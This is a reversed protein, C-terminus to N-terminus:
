FRTSVTLDFRQRRDHAEMRLPHAVNFRLPGIPSNWLLSVGAAARLSGTDVVCSETIGGACVNGAAVADIGRVTGIDLFAGGRMNYEAPLGIPFIAELRTVAYMNGGLGQRTGDEGFGAPGIGYPRFGRFTDPNLTFRENIRSPGSRHRVLGAEFEARLTVDGNLVTQEYGALVTSRLWRRDGGLGALDGTFRLYLGRDPDNGVGRTDFSYTLGVSNTVLYDLNHDSRLRAPINADTPDALTIRDRMLSARMELRAFESVPFSLSPSFQQVATGFLAQQNPTSRSVGFRLGLALDRDLLAPETFSLDFSRMSRVTNLTLSLRQGRGLFNNESYEINGGIGENAGFSVGFGLSGTTTEELQVDVVAQDSNSGPVPNVRVDSFYGLQEIRAAAERIERPNLPDGEAVEFQRRVVQDQTTTNGQIDIREIFTRPGRVLAFEVDILGDRENRTLRPEARLFREGSQYGVRELQQILNELANPTFLTGSRNTMAAQFPAADIGPLESVVSQRGFRYQQGERITYTVFIGDRERTLEATGATVEADVFGRSRYFDQLVQRDRGIRGEEFNDVQFFASLRGAQASQIANRLRAESFSRNGVFSLRQIEAVRGERIEFALDVRGNPREIIRPTVEAALRGAAAYAEAIANADQEAQSPSFVGGPRSRIVERLADDRLRRNGELAVAGLLPYEQVQIVLRNGRPIFDVSRFFGTSVVRQMAANVEAASMARSRAIRAFGIITEADIQRNGEVTVSTFRFSQAEAASPLVATGGSLVAGFALM